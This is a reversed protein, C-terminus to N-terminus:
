RGGRHAPLEIRALQEAVRAASGPLRPTAARLWDLYGGFLDHDVRHVRGVVLQLEALIDPAMAREARLHLEMTYDIWMGERLAGALRLAYRSTLM